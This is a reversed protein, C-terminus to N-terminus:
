QLRIEKHRFGPGLEDLLKGMDDYQHPTVALRLSVLAPAEPIQVVEQPPAIVVNISPAGPDLLFVVGLTGLLALAVGGDIVQDRSLIMMARAGGTRPLMSAHIDRPTALRYRPVM